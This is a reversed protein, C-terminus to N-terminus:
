LSLAVEASLAAQQHKTSEEPLADHFRREQSTGVAQLRVTSLRM